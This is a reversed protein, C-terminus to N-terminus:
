IKREIMNPNKPEKTQNTLQNIQNPKKLCNRQTVTRATKYGVKYVLNVKFM